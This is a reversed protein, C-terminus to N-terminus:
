YFYEMIWTNMLTNKIEDNWVINKKVKKYIEDIEPDKESLNNTHPLTDIELFYNIKDLNDRLNEFRYLLLYNNNKLKFLSYGFQKNFEFGLEKLQTIEFFEEFWHNFSLNYKSNTIMKCIEEISINKLNEKPFEYCYEGEYNNVKMQMDNFFNDHYTQFFYSINRDLPNRIGSIILSDSKTLVEKLYKLSHGHSTKYKSQLGHLFASSAVKAVTIIDINKINLDSIRLSM